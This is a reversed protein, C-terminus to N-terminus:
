EIVLEAQGSDSSTGLTKLLYQERLRSCRRLGCLRPVHNYTHWTPDMTKILNANLFANSYEVSM